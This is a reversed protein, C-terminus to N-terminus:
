RAVGLLAPVETVSALIHVRSDRGAAYGAADFDAASLEGTLVGVTHAVGANLGAQVDVVTDGATLVRSVDVIGTHEMARHILYPAPRGQAVEDGCVLADITVGEDDGPVGIRWGLGALIGTAVPRTFGTTLAIRIGAARLERLTEPIGPLPRPPTTTYYQDLLTAFRDYASAISAATVTGGGLELLAALAAHKETGMWAQLDHPDVTAGTETVADELARYVAGGDDITTGAMDFVALQIM